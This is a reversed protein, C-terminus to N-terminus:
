IGLVMWWISAAEVGYLKQKGKRSKGEALMYLVMDAHKLAGAAYRAYKLTGHTKGKGCAIACVCESREKGQWCDELRLM